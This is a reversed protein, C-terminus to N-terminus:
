KMGFWPESGLDNLFLDRDDKGAIDEGAQRALELYKRCEVPHNNLASARAIAEYAYALDFDKFGHKETLELCKSAHRMARVKDELLTYVKALMWQGRQENLPTGVQLWHYLSAHALHIMMDNDEATRESKELLTWIKNFCDVAFKKHAAPENIITPESM